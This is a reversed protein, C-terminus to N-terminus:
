FLSELFDRLAWVLRYLVSLKKKIWLDKHRVLQHKKVDRKLRSGVINKIYEIKISKKEYPRLLSLDEKLIKHNKKFNKSFYLSRRLTRKFYLESKFEKKKYKWDNLSYHIEEIM